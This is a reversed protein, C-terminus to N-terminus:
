ARDRRAARGAALAGPAVRRGLLARQAGEPGGTRRDLERLDAIVRAADIAPGASMRGRARQRRLAQALCHAGGGGLTFMSLDLEHVTLGRARLQANLADAGHSRSCGSTASRSRTPASSSPTTRRVGRDARLRPRSALDRIRGLPRRHLGGGAAGRAGRPARRHPRLARSDAGGPGGLRGRALWGALQRAAPEQTRAEGAGIVACGPELIMVDGGELAGATIM